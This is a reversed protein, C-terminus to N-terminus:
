NKFKSLEYNEKYNNSECYELIEKEILPSIQDSDEILNNTFAAIKNQVRTLFYGLSKCYISPNDFGRTKSYRNILYGGSCISSLQCDNCKNCLKRKYNYYLNALPNAYLEVIENNLVNLHTKHINPVCARLPDNAQIEGDTELIFTNNDRIGYYEDGTGTEESAGYFLSVLLEFQDIKLTKDEVWLNFFDWLWKGLELNDNFEPNYTDDPFLLNLAGANIKKYHNFCDIPKQSVDIVSLIGPSYGVKEKLLNYGNLIDKYSSKGNHYIRNIDNSLETSDLSISVHINLKQFLDIWKSTILVGNTQLGFLPTVSHKSFVSVTNSIFYEYLDESALLPEGGHFVINFEHGKYTSLYNDMKSLFNDIVSKSMYKPQNKYSLDGKNYMYCYGCNLNCRSAIKVVCTTFEADMNKIKLIALFEIDKLLSM